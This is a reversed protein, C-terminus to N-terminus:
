PSDSLEREGKTKARCQVTMSVCGQPSPNSVTTRAPQWPMHGSSHPRCVSGCVATWDDHHCSSNTPSTSPCSCSRASVAAVQFSGESLFLPGRKRESETMRQDTQYKVQHNLNLQNLGSSHSEEESLINRLLLGHM